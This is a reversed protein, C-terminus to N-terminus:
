PSVEAQQSVKSLPEAYKKKQAVQLLCLASDAFPERALLIDLITNTDLFLKM